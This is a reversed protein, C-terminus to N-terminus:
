KLYLTCNKKGEMNLVKSPIGSLVSGSDQDKVVVTNPCIFCWDGINVNGIIKVGNGLFCNDGIIPEGKGRMGGILVCPHITSNRGVIANLNFVIPGSM